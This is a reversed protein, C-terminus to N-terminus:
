SKLTGPYLKRIIETLFVLKNNNKNYKIFSRSNHARFLPTKSFDLTANVRKPAESFNMFLVPRNCLEHILSIKLNTGSRPYSLLFYNNDEKLSKDDTYICFQLLVVALFPVINRYKLM